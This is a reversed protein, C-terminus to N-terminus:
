LFISIMWRVMDGLFLQHLWVKDMEKPLNDVFVTVVNKKGGRFSGGISKSM